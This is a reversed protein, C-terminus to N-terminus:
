IVLMAEMEWIWSSPYVLPFPFSSSVTVITSIIECSCRSAAKNDEFIQEYGKNGKEVRPDAKQDRGTGACHGCDPELAGMELSVNCAAIKATGSEM